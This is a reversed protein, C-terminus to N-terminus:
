GVCPYRCSLYVKSIGCCVAQAEIPGRLRDCCTVAEPSTQVQAKATNGVKSLRKVSNEYMFVTNSKGRMINM